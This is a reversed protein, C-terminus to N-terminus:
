HIFSQIPHINSNLNTSRITCSEKAKNLFLYADILRFNNRVMDSRVVTSHTVEARACAVSVMVRELAVGAYIEILKQGPRFLPLCNKEM